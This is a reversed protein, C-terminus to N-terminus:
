IATKVEERGMPVHGSLGHGALMFFEEEHLDLM